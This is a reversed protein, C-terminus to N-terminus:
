LNTIAVLCQTDSTCQCDVIKKNPIKILLCAQRLPEFAAPTTVNITGQVTQINVNAGANNKLYNQQNPQNTQQLQNPLKQSTNPQILQTQQNQEIQSNKVGGIFSQASGLSNKGVNKNQDVGYGVINGNADKIPNNSSYSMNQNIIQAGECNGNQCDEPKIPSNPDNINWEKGSSDIFNGNKDVPTSVSQAKAKYVNQYAFFSLYSALSLSFISLFVILKAKNM